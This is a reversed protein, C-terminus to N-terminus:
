VKEFMSTMLRLEVLRHYKDTLTFIFFGTPEYIKEIQWVHGHMHQIIEKHEQPYGALIYNKLAVFDGKKM